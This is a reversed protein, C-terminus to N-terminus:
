LEDYTVRQTAQLDTGNQEQELTVWHQSSLDGMLIVHGDTAHSLSQYLKFAHRVIYVSHLRFQRPPFNQIIFLR